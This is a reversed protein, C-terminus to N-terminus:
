THLGRQEGCLTVRYESDRQATLQMQVPRGRLILLYTGLAFHSAKNEQVEVQRSDAAVLSGLHASGGSGCVIIETFLRM